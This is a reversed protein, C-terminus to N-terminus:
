VDQVSPKEESVLELHIARWKGRSFRFFMYFGIIWGYACAVIWPGAPGTQPYFRAVCYGGGVTITWCLGAVAITPVFTDGAGRLAGSYIIYLADSIEYIAAIILYTAGIEIIRSDSTFLGILQRRAIVFIIGCVAIYVAAVYFGLHARQMAIDPRKRGIYRGVLATVAASIGIAPLFSVVMYRFMFANAAMADAGLVGIVVNCFISWALVDSFWQLGSPIGIRILAALENWRIPFDLANFRERIQRRFTLVVLVILEITVGVNQAWAAGVVGYAPIGYNGPVICWAVIANIAVGAATAILLNNPRDVGLCFQGVAMSVLKLVASILVIQFYSEEMAVQAAPHHFHTFIFPALARLPLLLIGFFIALWIGQWLYQGCQRYEQRGFSQSVLTNVIVLIGMGFALPSFALIGSNAAATPPADGLRSLIWTDIFQMTTYSAMQAVTPLALSLLESLPTRDRETMEFSNIPFRQEDNTM